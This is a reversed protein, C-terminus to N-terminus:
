LLLVLEIGVIFVKLSEDSATKLSIWCYNIIQTKLAPSIKRVSFNWVAQLQQWCIRSRNAQVLSPNSTRSYNLDKGAATSGSRQDGLNKPFRPTKDRWSLQQYNDRRIFFHCCHIRTLFLWPMAIFYRNNRMQNLLTKFISLKLLDQYM